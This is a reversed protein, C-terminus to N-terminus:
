SQGLVAVIRAEPILRVCTASGAPAALIHGHRWVGRRPMRHGALRGVLVPGAMGHTALLGSGLIRVRDRGIATMAYIARCAAGRRPEGLTLYPQRPLYWELPSRYAFFDGSSGFLVIPDAPKWGEAVLLASARDYPTPPTAESRIVAVTMVAVAALAVPYAAMRPLRAPLAALAIAAFPGVAILNRPDYVHAGALWALAAMAVPALALLALLRGTASTRALLLCGGAVAALLLLPLLVGAPTHQAFLEWYTDVLGRVSFPGIWSFRHGLYQHVLAPSWLALPVLGIAVQRTLRGRSARLGRESWIWILAAALSLLFFYNTLSGAAVAIALQHRRWGPAPAAASERLLVWAFVLTALAFLEYARLERGHMVFQWGFAVLVGAVVATWLPAVRRALLVTGGALLAGALVSLARFGQPSVGVQNALWGLAYWLPPTAEVRAVERLMGWPTAQIIAHASSVEDEWLADRVAGPIRAAAALAAVAAACALATERPGTSRAATRPRTPTLATM